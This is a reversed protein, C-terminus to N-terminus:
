NKLLNKQILRGLAGLQQHQSPKFNRIIPTGKVDNGLNALINPLLNDAVLSLLAGDEGLQSSFQKELEKQVQKLIRSRQKNVITELAKEIGNQQSSLANRFERLMMVGIEEGFAEFQKQLQESLASQANGVM